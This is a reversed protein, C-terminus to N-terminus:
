KGVELLNGAQNFLVYIVDKGLITGVRGKPAEYEGFYRTEDRDGGYILLPVPDGSHDKLAVPTSHDGTVAVVVDDLDLLPRLYGDVEEIYKKKEEWKGDHGYVDSLKFHVYFFDYENLHKLLFDIKKDDEVKFADMGFYRGM